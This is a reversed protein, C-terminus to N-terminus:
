TSSSRIKSIGAATTQSIAMRRRPASGLRRWAPWPTCQRRGFGTTIDKRSHELPLRRPRHDTRRAAVEDPHVVGSAIVTTPPIRSEPAERGHQPTEALIQAEDGEDGAGTDREVGQA